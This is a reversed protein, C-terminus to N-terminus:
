LDSLPPEAAAPQSPFSDTAAPELQSEGPDVYRHAEPNAAVGRRLRLCAEVGGNPHNRLELEADNKEALTKAITLGLGIGEATSHASTQLRIFPEFVDGLKEPPIGPGHDRIRVEVDSGVWDASIEASGGYKLANDILNALCRQLARPRAEVDCGCTRVLAVPQGAVAADDVVIELLQDLALNVFPEKTQVSRAYDLGERILAQMTGLDDILRSRLAADQVKELRLRLRTMPTQLDHTISALLQTREVVYTRLTAQMTNFARAAERVERPGLEPLPNRELDQGLARAARALDGLPAAAMRAALFALAALGAALILMFAPNVWYSEGQVHGRVQLKLLRGDTLPASVVWCDFQDLAPTTPLRTFCSSPTAQAARVNKKLRAEVGAVVEPDPRVIKERGSAERIGTVGNQLLEARLPESSRDALSIYDALRDVVRELRLHHLDATRRADAMALALTASGIVGVLLLVFLRGAMTGFYDHLKM